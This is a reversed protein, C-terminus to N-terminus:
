AEECMGGECVEIINGLGTADLHRYITHTHTHTHTHTRQDHTNIYIPM